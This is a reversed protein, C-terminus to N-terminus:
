RAFVWPKRERMSVLLPRATRARRRPERVSSVESDAGLYSAWRQIESVHEDAANGFVESPNVVLASAVGAREESSKADAFRLRISRVNAKGDRQATLLAITRLRM